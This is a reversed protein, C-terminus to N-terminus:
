RAKSRGSALYAFEKACGRSRELSHQRKATDPFDLALLTPHLRWTARNSCISTESESSNLYFTGLMAPTHLGPKPGRLARSKEGLGKM